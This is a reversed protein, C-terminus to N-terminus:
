GLFREDRTARLRDWAARVPMAGYQRELRRLAFHGRAVSRFHELFALNIAAGTAAGIVPAMQASIKLGVPVGFRAAIQGLFGPLLTRGVAGVLAENLALRVAFYGSEAADDTGSRGGLAFVKLCETAMGPAALDEGEEAAIAAIQRLLVSTTVPLEALTGPLGFAGGVFGTTAALGRHFWDSPVLPLSRAPDSRLAVRMATSLARRVAGDLMGRAPAPLRAALMEVPAGVISALRTAFSTEELARFAAALDRAAQDPLPAPNSAHPALASSAASM